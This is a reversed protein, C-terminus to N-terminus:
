GLMEFVLFIAASLGGAAPVTIVWAAIITMFHHRRV